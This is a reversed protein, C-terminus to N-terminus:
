KGGSRRQGMELIRQRMTSIIESDTDTRDSLFVIDIDYSAMSAELVRSMHVAVQCDDEFVIPLYTFECGSSGDLSDEIGALYDSLRKGREFSPAFLTVSMALPGSRWARGDMAATVAERLRVFAQYNPHRPNRLSFREDKYPPYGDVHISIREGPAPPPKQPLAGPDYPVHKM